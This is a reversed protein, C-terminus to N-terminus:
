AGAPLMGYLGLPVSGDLLTATPCAAAFDLHRACAAPEASIWRRAQAQPHVLPRSTASLLREPLPRAIFLARGGPRAAVDRYARGACAGLLAFRHGATSARRPSTKRPGPSSRAPALPSSTTPTCAAVFSKLSPLGVYTKPAVPNEGAVFHSTAAPRVEPLLSGQPCLYRALPTSPTCTNVAKDAPESSPAGFAVREPLGRPPGPGRLRLCSSPLARFTAHPVFRRRRPRRPLRSPTALSDFFGRLRLALPSCSEPLPRPRRKSRLAPACVATM